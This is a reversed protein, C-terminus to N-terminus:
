GRGAHLRRPFRPGDVTRPRATPVPAGMAALRRARHSALARLRRRLRRAPQASRNEISFAQQHPANRIDSTVTKDVFSKYSNAKVRLCWSANIKWATIHMVFRGSLAMSNRLYARSYSAREAVYLRFMNIAQIRRLNPRVDWVEVWLGVGRVACRQRQDPSGRWTWAICVSAGGTLGCAPESVCSGAFAAPELAGRVPTQAECWRRYRAYVATAGERTQSAPVCAHVRCRQRSSSAETTAARASTTM